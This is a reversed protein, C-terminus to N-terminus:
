SVSACVSLCVPACLLVCQLVCLMGSILQVLNNLLWTWKSQQDAMVM